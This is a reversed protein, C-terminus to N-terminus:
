KKAHHKYATCISVSSDLKTKRGSQWTNITNAFGLSSTWSWRTVGLYACHMNGTHLDLLFYSGCGHLSGHSNKWRMMPMKSIRHLQSGKFGCTRETRQRGILKALSSPSIRASWLSWSVQWDAFFCVKEEILRKTIEARHFYFEETGLYM